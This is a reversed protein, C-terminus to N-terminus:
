DAHMAALFLGEAEQNFDHCHHHLIPKMAPMLENNMDMLKKEIKHHEFEPDGVQGDGVEFQKKILQYKFAETIVPM